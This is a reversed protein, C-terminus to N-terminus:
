QVLVRDAPVLTSVATQAYLRSFVRESTRVIKRFLRLWREISSKNRQRRGNNEPCFNWHCRGRELVPRFECSRRM